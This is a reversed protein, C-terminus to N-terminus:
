MIYRGGEFGHQRHWPGALGDALAVSVGEYWHFAGYVFRRILLVETGLLSIRFNRTRPVFIYFGM